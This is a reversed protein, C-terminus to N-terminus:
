HPETGLVFTNSVPIENIGSASVPWPLFCMDYGYSDVKKEYTFIDLSSSRHMEM